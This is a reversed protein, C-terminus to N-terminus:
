YRIMISLDFIRKKGKYSISEFYKKEGHLWNANNYFSFRKEKNAGLWVKLEDQSTLTMYISKSYGGEATLNYRTIKNKYATFVKNHLRKKKYKSIVYGDTIVDVKNINKYKAKRFNNHRSNKYHSNNDEIQNIGEIENIMNRHYENQQQLKDIEQYLLKITMKNHKISQKHFSIEDKNQYYNSGFSQTFSLIIVALITLLTHKM